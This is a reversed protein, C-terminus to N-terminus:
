VEQDRPIQSSGMEPAQDPPAEGSGLEYILRLSTEPFITETATLERCLYRIAADSARNALHHLRVTLTGAEHDPLLDAENSYLARLLSRADDHRRMVDRFVNTMATEARYAIMKITDIFHKSNSHLQKFRQSKPLDGVPIHRPTAKRQPKLKSIKYELQDIEELMAAKKTQWKEVAKPAIPEDLSLAAFEARRRNRLGNNKRISADLARYAPNVVPTAEPIDELAYTSLHDLGYHELMYRFFNEQGWRGFMAAALRPQPTIYDTTVIPTQHGSDTLRRIERVWLGGQKLFVGREALLMEVMEGNSLTVPEVRFEELPWDPGPSRRYTLCAIRRKKMAAFLVPSYGERDFVLTFRHRLPDDALEQESVLGPADREIRPVIDNELVKVLGPDVAQAIVFFPQADLANVWYDTTGRLCLRQRSVYRRPLPTQSGHYVRVHGDVYLRGVAEPDAQMWERCLEASWQTVEGKSALIELKNRLTRVEPVRDLGLVKGWEGPSCYRLGEISKVRALALFALLLFISPMGYYGRPFQFHKESGRLLGVSLLAPLALLVGANAVDVASAFDPKVSGALGLSSMIRGVSDTAGMGLPASCDETSRESKTTVPEEDGAEDVPEKKKVRVRGVRVAKAVTNPLVGLEHAAEAVGMGKDLLGTLKEVVKETLVASGRGRRPAYFGGPGHERYRKVARKVSVQPIGFARVIDIQRVYGTVVMQSTIMRFTRVDDKDHHFVPLCGVFYTVKGDRCEVGVEPTILTMGPPFIPLQIQPM